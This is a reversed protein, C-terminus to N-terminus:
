KCLKAACRGCVPRISEIGLQIKVIPPNLMLTARNTCGPESCPTKAM